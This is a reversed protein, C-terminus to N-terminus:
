FKTDVMLWAWAGDHALTGIEKIGDLAHVYSYGGSLGLAPSIQYKLALDAEDALNKTTLFGQQAASFAHLDLHAYLAPMPRVFFKIAPDQLGLGATQTPIDTFLDYLGYYPHNTAYLTSFVKVNGAAPTPDGSLYDYWLTVGAAGGRLGYTGELGFMYAAVDAGGRTGFQYSAETRWSLAGAADLWRGGVTKQRDGAPGSRANLFAYADFAGASMTQITSYAGLVSADRLNAPASNESTKLAVLNLDTRQGFGRTYRLGDFARGQQTWNVAGMLREDGFGIEQRGARLLGGVWPLGSIEAYGQHLDFNDASYDALTNTEAGWLRVDQLQIFVRVRPDVIANLSARVRMSTFSTNVPRRREYRPRVQGGFTLDPTQAAATGAILLAAAAGFVFSSRRM